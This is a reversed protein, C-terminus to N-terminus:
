RPEAAQMIFTYIIVIANFYIENQFSVSSFYAIIIIVFDEVVVVVFVAFCMFSRFIRHFLFAVM